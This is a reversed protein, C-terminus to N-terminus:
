ACADRQRHRHREDRRQLEHLRRHGSAARAGRHEPLQAFAERRCLGCGPVLKNPDIKQPRVELVFQNDSQYASHEWVGRPEVVMRVRDGAQTTIVSQVPTGFDTVDLRRRLSDPLSSRLFEVVLNQGQQRIDVGVQNNPLDVVVRGAGDAGRRFDIDNLPLQTATSAKPSARPRVARRAPWRDPAPQRACVVLM